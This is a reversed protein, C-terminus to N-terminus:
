LIFDSASMSGVFLQIRFDAVADGNVDGEVFGNLFNLEGATGTFANAGIFTFAQNGAVNANADIISLDIKDGEASNFDGIQDPTALLSDSIDNYIFHDGETGGFMIDFGAGGVLNDTGAGGAIIDNGIGGVMNDGGGAGSLNNDSSNGTITNDDDNGTGAIGGGNELLTLNDVNAGLVFTVSSNVTDIGGNALEIVRDGVDDVFYRDNNSGGILTDAGGRGDLTDAGAGGNLSNGVENGTLIDNFNTGRVNEISRLTDTPFFLQGNVITIESATGDAGNQGLTVIVRGGLNNEYTATDSGDGGDLTDSGGKGELVDNGGRGELVNNGANGVITEFRNSGRVNEFESLTDTEVVSTLGTQLNTVTRAATGATLDIRISELFPSYFGTPDWSTFSVTDIGDGGALSDDGFGGDITDNGGMGYLADNGGLGSVINTRENGVITNGLANGTGNISFDGELVLGEIGNPMVFSVTSFVADDDGGGLFESVVDGSSNVFYVDDGDGGFMQDDGSGGDLQDNDLGGVLVDNNAGGFLHDDGAGGFLTDDGGNGFIDDEGDRGDLINNFSNGRIENDLENGTGDIAGATAALTLKEVDHGLTFSVLALVEDTGGGPFEDARDGANDVVYIDNGDGGQMVDVGTGGDMYDNGSGALILDDGGLGYITDDENDNGILVHGHGTFISGLLTSDDDQETGIILAM